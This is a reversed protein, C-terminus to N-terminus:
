LRTKVPKVKHRDDTKHMKEWLNVMESLFGDYCQGTARWRDLKSKTIKSIAVTTRPNNPTMNIIEGSCEPYTKGAWV